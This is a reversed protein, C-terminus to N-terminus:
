PVMSESYALGNALSTSAQRQEPSVVSRNRMDLVFASGDPGKAYLPRGSDDQNIQVHYRGDGFSHLKTSNRLYDATIPEGKSTTVGKLDNDGFSEMLAEFRPQDLNRFPAILPAGNHYLIGGTVDEAAKKLRSSDLKGSVDGADASRAAYLADVARSMVAYSGSPNTRSALNFAALPLADRKASDYANKLAAVHPVYDKNTKQAGIGTLISQAVEPAQPLLAGAFVKTATEPGDSALKSLTASRINEPLTALTRFVRAQTAVDPSSLFGKVQQVDAKDLVSLGPEQYNNAGTQAIQSRVKLGAMLKEDSSFDLPPVGKIGIREGLNAVTTAIPNDALGKNVAGDVRELDRLVAAGAADLRGEHAAVQMVGITAHRDTAPAAGFNRAADIRQMDTGIQELLAANNTARAASIIGNVAVTSPIVQKENFGKMVSSWDDWTAKDSARQRNAVLWAAAAPGGDGNSKGEFVQRALSLRAGYGFSAEPKDQTYGAPREYHVFAAAAEEPTKAAQLKTLTAGETTRLEHDIFEIQTDFDTAPKGKSKAFAKLADLRENHFQALGGSTGADGLATPDLGSEPILNGIIGAAAVPSHGLSTLKDAARGANAMGRVVAIGRARDAAPQAAFDDNLPKRAFSAYVRAAGGPDGADRFAGAVKEVQDSEIRIGTASALTLENFAARAEGIDQRRISENARIEGVARHFYGERQQDPLKLKTDTLISKADEVAAAYGKEKYIQDNHYLFISAGVSSEFQQYDVKAQAPTYALAPNNARTNLLTQYKGLLQQMEPSELPAGKRALTTADNKASEMGASIDNDARQLDLRTKTDVMGRYTQTTTSGIIHDLAGSVEPGLLKGYDSVISKRYADAAILYTQPDHQHEQQLEIDKRKTEDDIRTVTAVKMAHDYATASDGLLFPRDVQLNGGADRTVQAAAGAQQALPVAVDKNVIDGAKALNAAMEEYPQAIQGPSVRSEPARVQPVVNQIGPLDVM